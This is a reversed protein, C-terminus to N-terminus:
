AKRALRSNKNDITEASNDQSVLNLYSSDKPSTNVEVNEAMTKNLSFQSKQDIDPFESYNEENGSLQINIIGGGGGGDIASIDSLSGIRKATNPTSIDAEANELKHTYNQIKLSDKAEKPPKYFSTM